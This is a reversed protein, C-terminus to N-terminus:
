RFYHEWNQVTVMEKGKDENVTEEVCVSSPSWYVWASCSSAMNVMLTIRWVWSWSSGFRWRGPGRVSCTMAQIGEGLAMNSTWVYSNSSRISISAISLRIRM